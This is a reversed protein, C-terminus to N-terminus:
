LVDRKNMLCDAIIACLPTWIVTVALIAIFSLANPVLSAFSYAESVTFNFIQAIGGLGLMQLGMKLTMVIMGTGVIGVGVISWGYNRRFLLNVVIMLITMPISLLLMEALYLIFGFISPISIPLGMVLGVVFLTILYVAIFIANCIVGTLTKSIIYDCKNAHAPIINKIFGSTYERGIYICMLMGTLITLISLNMGMGFASSAEEGTDGVFMMINRVDGMQTLMMIPIFIAICVMVYFAKGHVMRHLDMKFLNKVRKFNVSLLDRM